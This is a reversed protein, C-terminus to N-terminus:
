RQHRPAPPLGTMAEFPRAMMGIDARARHSTSMSNTQAAAIRGGEVVPVHQRTAFRAGRLTVMPPM